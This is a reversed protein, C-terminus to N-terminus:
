APSGEEASELVVQAIAYDGDHSLSLHARVPGVHAALPPALRLAPRGWADAIVEVHRLDVGVLRPPAGFFGGSWAKVFAEKAAFRAALHRAPDGSPRDAADRREGPTFVGEAFGSARDALQDRLGPVHVLDVGVGVIQAPSM